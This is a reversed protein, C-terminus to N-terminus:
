FPQQSPTTTPLITTTRTTTQATTLSTIITTHTLTISYIQTTTQDITIPPTAIALYTTITLRRPTSSHPTKTLTATIITIALTIITTRPM